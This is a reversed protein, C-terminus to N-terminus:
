CPSPKRGARVRCLGGGQKRGGRKRSPKELGELEGAEPRGRSNGRQTLGVRGAQGGGRRVLDTSGAKSHQARRGWTQVQQM